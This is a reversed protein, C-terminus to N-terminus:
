PSALLVPTHLVREKLSSFDFLFSGLSLYSPSKRRIKVSGGFRPKTFLDRVGLGGMKLWAIEELNGTVQRM